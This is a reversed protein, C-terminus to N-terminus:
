RRLIDRRTDAVFVGAVSQKGVAHHHVRPSVYWISHCLLEVAIIHNVAIGVGLVVAPHKHRHAINALREVEHASTAVDISREAAVLRM